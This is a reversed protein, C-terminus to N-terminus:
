RWLYRARVVEGMDLAHGYHRGFDGLGERASEIELTLADLKAGLDDLEGKGPLGELAQLEHVDLHGACWLALLLRIGESLTVGQAEAREMARAKESADIRVRLRDDAMTAGKGGDSTDLIDLAHGPDGRRSHRIQGM